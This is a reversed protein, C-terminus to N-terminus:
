PTRPNKISKTRGGHPHDVPNRAVGRSKPKKGFSVNYGANYPLSNQKDIPCVVGSSGLSYISFVKTFGSPLKILSLGTRSDMKLIRASSGSSRAYKIGSYPVQELLCVKSNKPLDSIITVLKSLMFKPNLKSAFIMYSQSQLFLSSYMNLSFLSQNNTTTLFTSMGSSIFLTSIFKNQKPIYILNGIFSIANNRFSYNIKPLRNRRIIRGKSYTIISGNSSRGSSGKRTYFSLSPLKLELNFPLKFRVRNRSANSQVSMKNSLVSVKM